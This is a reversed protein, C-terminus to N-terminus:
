YALPLFATSLILSFVLVLIVAIMVIRPLRPGPM